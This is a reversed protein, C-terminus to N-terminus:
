LHITQDVPTSEWCQEAPVFVLIRALRDDRTEVIHLGTSAVGGAADILAAIDEIEREVAYPQTDGSDGRGRRDYTVVTFDSQLLGALPGAFMRDCFAGGVLVVAPGSGAREYAIATGDRSTVTRFDIDM